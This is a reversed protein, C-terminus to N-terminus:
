YTVLDWSSMMVNRSTALSPADAEMKGDLQNAEANRSKLIKSCFLYM